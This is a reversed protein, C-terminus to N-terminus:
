PERDPDDPDDDPEDPPRPAEPRLDPLHEMPAPNRVPPAPADARRLLAPAALGVM